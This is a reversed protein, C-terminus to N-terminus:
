RRGNRWGPVPVVFRAFEVMLQLASRKMPGTASGFRRLQLPTSQVRKSPHGAVGVLGARDSRRFLRLELQFPSSPLFGFNRAGFNAASLHRHVIGDEQM